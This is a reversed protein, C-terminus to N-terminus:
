MFKILMNFFFGSRQLVPKILNVSVKQHQYEVNYLLTSKYSCVLMECSCAEEMKLGCPMVVWFALVSIKVATLVEFRM